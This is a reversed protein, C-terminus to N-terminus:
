PCRKGKEEGALLCDLVSRCPEYGPMEPKQPTGGFVLCIIVLAAFAAYFM